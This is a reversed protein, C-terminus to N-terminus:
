PTGGRPSGQPVLRRERPSWVLRHRRCARPEMAEPSCSELDVTSVAAPTAAADIELRPASMALVPQAANGASAFLSMPPPKASRGEPVDCYFEPVIWDRLGDGDIDPVTLPREPDAASGGSNTCAEIAARFATTVAAPPSGDAAEIPRLFRVVGRGNPAAAEVLQGLRGDWRFSAPCAHAGFTHCVSGHLDFDVIPAAGARRFRVERVQADFIKLPHSPSRDLWIQTWCGGTGCWDAGLAEKSFLYDPRGDGDIDVPKLGLRVQRASPHEGNEGSEAVIAEVVSAVPDARPPGASALFAAAMVALYLLPARM